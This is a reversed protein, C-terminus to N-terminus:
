RRKFDNLVDKIDLMTDVVNAMKLFAKLLETNRQELDKNKSHLEDIIDSKEDCMQKLEELEERTDFDYHEAMCYNLMGAIEDNEEELKRINENLKDCRECDLNCNYRVSERAVKYVDGDMTLDYREM